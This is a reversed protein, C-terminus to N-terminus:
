SIFFSIIIKFKAENIVGDIVINEMPASGGSKPVHALSNISFISALIISALFALIM